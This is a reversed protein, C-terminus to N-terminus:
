RVMGGIRYPGLVVNHKELEEILEKEEDGIIYVIGAINIGKGKYASAEGM